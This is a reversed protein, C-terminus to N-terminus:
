VLRGTRNQIPFIVVLAVSIQRGYTVKNLYVVLLSFCFVGVSICTHDSVFGRTLQVALVVQFLANCSSRIPPVRSLAAILLGIRNSKGSSLLGRCPREDGLGALM